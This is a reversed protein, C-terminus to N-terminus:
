PQDPDLPLVALVSALQTVRWRRGQSFNVALFRRAGRGWLAHCRSAAHGVWGSSATLIPLGEAKRVRTDGAGLVTGPVCYAQSVRTNLACHARHPFPCFGEGSDVAVLYPDSGPWLAWTLGQGQKERLGPGAPSVAPVTRGTADRSLSAWRRWETQTGRFTPRPHSTHGGQAAQAPPGSLTQGM